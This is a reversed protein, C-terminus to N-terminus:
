LKAISSRHTDMALRLAYMATGPATCVGYGGHGYNHVVTAENSRDDRIRDVEVRVNSERHPRLGVEQRVIEANKLSPVLANCRQRIAASEYPCLNTNESDFSRSGGLTVVGHFGPIVYTDLEGYFFTKLWPAKVKIVQGRLSVMRKDNCLERAGFGTCNMVLDFEDALENLSHLKRRRLTVGNAQLQRKAWPLYLSCQTLLTSFYSGYKWDGGVLQLEEETARRYIPVLDEIWHSKVTSLSSNAFIYGSINTVGAHSAEESKRINDYYEYSDKIWQRTIQETPGSYSAGVRFIGAAVHSVTDDFNSALVTMEANRLERQLLLTTTLGVVGGGVVAVKM